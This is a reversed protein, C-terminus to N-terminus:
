TEFKHRLQRLKKRFIRKADKYDKYIDNNKDRQRGANVWKNRIPKEYKSLQSLQQNLCPKLHKRYQHNPLQKVHKMMKGTVTDIVRGILEPSMRLQNIM